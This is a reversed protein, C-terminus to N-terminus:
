KDRLHKSMTPRGYPCGAQLFSPTPKNTIIKLMGRRIDGTTVVVEMMKLELLISFPYMRTGALGPGCPFHGSFLLSIM